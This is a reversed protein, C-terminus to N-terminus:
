GQPDPIGAIELGRKRDAYNRQRHILPGQMEHIITAALSLETELPISWGSSVTLAVILDGEGPIYQNVEVRVREFEGFTDAFFRKYGEHGSYVAIPWGEIPHIECDTTFFRTMREYEGAKILDFDRTLVEYAEQLSELPTPV